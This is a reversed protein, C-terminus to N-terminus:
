DAPQAFCPITTYETGVIGARAIPDPHSADADHRRYNRAPDFATSTSLAPFLRFFV